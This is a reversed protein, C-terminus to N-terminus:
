KDEIIESTERDRDALCQSGSRIRRVADARGVQRDRVPPLNGRVGSCVIALRRHKWSTGAMGREFTSRPDFGTMSNGAHAVNGADREGNADVANGGNSWWHM